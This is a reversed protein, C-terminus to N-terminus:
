QTTDGAQLATVAAVNMIDDVSAGRSLDNCPRALGQVIPGIAQAHALREVLKYAINGADLSPFVLINAHGAVDGGPAKRDAVAAILAADGQLKGDFRVDPARQLAIQVAQRVRDASKHAASGRTSFSLFAVRPLDGVIRPRDRAAAIAIDALQEATPAPVVACDAFTLVESSASRFPPVAMYFASSVTHVGPAAGIMWLAARMVEATTRVSGAVCGDVDGARVLDAAFYLPSTALRAAAASTLGKARRRELLADKARVTRPDSDPDIVEVGPPVKSAAIPHAADFVLLPRVIGESALRRAAEVIRPDGSEPFIIRRSTRSARNRLADVFAETM